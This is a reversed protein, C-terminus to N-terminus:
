PQPSPKALPLGKGPGARWRALDARTLRRLPQHGDPNHPSVINKKNGIAILVATRWLMGLEQRLSPPHTAWRADIRWLDSLSPNGEMTAIQARGTIGPKARYRQRFLDSDYESHYPRPGTLSMTGRLVHFFHLTEDLGTRRLFRSFWTTRQEDPLRNGRDDRYDYMTKLKWMIFPEGNKGYRPARHFPNEGTTLYIAAALATVPGALIVMAVSSFAIDLLRKRTM